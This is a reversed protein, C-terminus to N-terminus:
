QEMKVIKKELEKIMVFLMKSIEDYGEKLEHYFHNPIENEAFLLENISACELVSCRSTVLYNKRDRLSLKGSGEAINLQISLSARGFQHKLYNPISSNLKLFQYVKQSLAFALKYVKLSEHIFM